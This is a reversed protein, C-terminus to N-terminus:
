FDSISEERVWQFCKLATLSTVSLSFRSYLFQSIIDVAVRGNIEKKGKWSNVRREKEEETQVNRATARKQRVGRRTDRRAGRRWLSLAAKSRSSFIFNCVNKVKSLTYLSLLCWHEYRWWSLRRCKFQDKGVAPFKILSLFLFFASHIYM